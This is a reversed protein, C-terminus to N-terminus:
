HGRQTGVPKFAGAVSPTNSPGPQPMGESSEIDEQYRDYDTNVSWLDHRAGEAINEAALIGMLISHDQNNYKFAGYRGIVTLHPLGRLHGIVPALHTKYGRRYVPYCRPLRVVLGDAPDVGRDLGSQRLEAKALALCTADDATWLADENQCWYELTLISHAPTHAPHRLWNRFNTVRGLRLEPTQIYIWQDPFLDAAPLRLYVLITNRFRLEALSREVEEPLSGLTRALLNLPMTSILHDFLCRSGDPLRLAASEHGAVTVPTNLHIRGNLARVRDAMSEYVAGTGEDPYHFHDLTTAHRRRLGPLFAAALAQGLSFKKIRQAAFDADLEDCRLGWLKESYPRFFTEFLHRGFRAVVWDEFTLAPAPRFTRLVRQRAYSLGCRLAHPLGLHRLADGPELPYRLLRGEFWIRTLRQIQHHRGGTMELWLRNVRPDRSFFRHPGFDVKQGWLEFSGAMGGVRPGAEFVEVQHGRRALEFAATLGAPGAGIIGVRM